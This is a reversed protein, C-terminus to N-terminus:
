RQDETVDGEVQGNQEAFGKKSKWGTLHGDVSTGYVQGGHEM